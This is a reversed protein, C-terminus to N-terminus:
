RFRSSSSTPMEGDSRYVLFKRKWPARSKSSRSRRRSLRSWGCRKVEVPVGGLAARQNPREGGQVDETRIVMSHDDESPEPSHLGGRGGRSAQALLIEVVRGSAREGFVQSPPQSLLRVAQVAVIVQGRRASRQCDIAGPSSQSDTKRSLINEQKVFFPLSLLGALFESESRALPFGFPWFPQNVPRKHLTGPDFRHGGAQLGLRYGSRLRCRGVSDAHSLRFRGEQRVGDSLTQRCKARVASARRTGRNAVSSIKGRCRVLPPLM